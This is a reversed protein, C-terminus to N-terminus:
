QTGVAFDAPSETRQARETTSDAPLWAAPEGLDSLEVTSANLAIFVDAAQAAAVPDPRGGNFFLQDLLSPRGERFHGMTM